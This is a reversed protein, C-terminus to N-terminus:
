IPMGLSKFLFFILNMNILCRNTGFMMSFEKFTKHQKDEYINHLHPIQAVSGPQRLGFSEVGGLDGEQGIQRGDPNCLM